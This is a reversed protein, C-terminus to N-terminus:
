GTFRISYRTWSPLGQWEGAQRLYAPQWEMQAAAQMASENLVPHVGEVLEIAQPQGESDLYVQMEVQGSVGEQKLSDPYIVPVDTGLELSPQPERFHRRLVDYAESRLRDVEGQLDNRDIEQGRVDEAIIPRVHEEFLSDVVEPRNRYLPLLEEKVAAGLRRIVVDNQAASRTAALAEREQQRIGMSQLTELNRFARSTDVGQRWWQGESAQWDAPPGVQREEQQCGVVTALLWLGILVPAGRTARTSM